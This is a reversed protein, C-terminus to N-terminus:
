IALAETSCCCKNNKRNVAPRIQKPYLTVLDQLYHHILSNICKKPYKCANITEQFKYQSCQDTESVLLMQLWISTLTMKQLGVQLGLHHSSRHFYSANFAGGPFKPLQIKCFPPSM